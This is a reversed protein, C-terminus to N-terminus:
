ELGSFAKPYDAAGTTPPPLGTLFLAQFHPGAYPSAFPKAIATDFGFRRYYEPEGLLFLMQEGSAGAERVAAEVLATGIGQGQWEPIVAVPALGLARLRRGDAQVAMRSLMVHGVIGGDEAVISIVADGDAM